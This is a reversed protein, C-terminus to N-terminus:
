PKMRKWKLVVPDEICRPGLPRMVRTAQMFRLVLSINQGSRSKGRGLHPTDKRNAFNFKPQDRIAMAQRGLNLTHLTAKLDRQMCSVTAILVTRGNGGFSDHLIRTLLCSSAAVFEGNCRARVLRGVNLQHVCLVGTLCMCM